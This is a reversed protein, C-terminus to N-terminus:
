GIGIYKVRDIVNQILYVEGEIWEMLIVRKWEKLGFVGAFSDFRTIDGV